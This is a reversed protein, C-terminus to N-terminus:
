RADDVNGRVDSQINKEVWDRMRQWRQEPTEQVQGQGWVLHEDNEYMIEAAMSRAIDFRDGIVDNDVWDDDPDPELDSVNVGRHKALAGLTCPCDGRQFSNAGLRKVPMADLADRIDHLTRQGRKGRIARAVTGRYLGWNECEDTYGSRSM